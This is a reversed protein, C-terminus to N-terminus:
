IANFLMLYLKFLMLITYTYCMFFDFSDAETAEATNKRDSHRSVNSINQIEKPNKSSRRISASWLGSHIIKAELSNGQFLFCLSCQAGRVSLSPWVVSRYLDCQSPQSIYRRFCLAALM